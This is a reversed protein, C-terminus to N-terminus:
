SLSTNFNSIEHGVRGPRELNGSASALWIWCDSHPISDSVLAIARALDAAALAQQRAATIKQLFEDKDYEGSNPTM